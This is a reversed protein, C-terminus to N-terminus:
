LPFGVNLQITTSFGGTEIANKVPNQSSLYSFLADSNNKFYDVSFNNIGVTGELSVYKEIIYFIFGTGVSYGLHTKNVSYEEDPMMGNVTNYSKTLKIDGYTLGADVVKWHLASTVALGIDVGVGPNSSKLELSYTKNGGLSNYNASSKESVSSYFGKITFVLGQFNQRYFNIGLRYGTLTGFHKFGSSLSDKAVSNFDNMYANLGTAKYKQYQYGGFGGVLGLCGFGIQQANLSSYFLVCLIVPLKYNM